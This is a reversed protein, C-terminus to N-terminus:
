WVGQTFWDAVDFFLLITAVVLIASIGFSTWVFVDSLGRTVLLRVYAYTVFSIPLIMHISIQILIVTTRGARNVSTGRGFIFRRGTFFAGPPHLAVDMNNEYISTFRLRMVYQHILAYLTIDGLLLAMNLTLYAVIVPLVATILPTANTVKLIFVSVESVVGRTLLEFAASALLIFGITRRVALEAQRWNALLETLYNKLGDSDVVDEKFAEKIGERFNM